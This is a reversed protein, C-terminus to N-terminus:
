KKFIGKQKNTRNDKYKATPLKTKKKGYVDGITHLRKGPKTSGYEVDAETLQTALQELEANDPVTMRSVASIDDDKEQKELEADLEKILIDAEEEGVADAFANYIAKAGISVGTVAMNVTATIILQVLALTATITLGATTTFLFTLLWMAFKKVGMRALVPGLGRLVLLAPSEAIFEEAENLKANCNCHACDAACGCDKALVNAGCCKSSCHTDRKEETLFEFARM